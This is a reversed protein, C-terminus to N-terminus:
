HHYASIACTTTYGVVICDRGCPDGKIASPTLSYHQILLLFFEQKCMKLQIVIQQLYLKIIDNDSGINGCYM